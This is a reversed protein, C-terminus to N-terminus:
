DSHRNVDAILEWMVEPPANIWVQQRADSM